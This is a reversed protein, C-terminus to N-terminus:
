FVFGIKDARKSIKVCGFTTRQLNENTGASKRNLRGEDFVYVKILWPKTRDLFFRLESL